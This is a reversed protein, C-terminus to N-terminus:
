AKEIVQTYIPKNDYTGFSHDFGVTVILSDKLIWGDEFALNIENEIYTCNESSIIRIKKM